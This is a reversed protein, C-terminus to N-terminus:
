QSILSQCRHGLFTDYSKSLFPVFEWCSHIAGMPGGPIPVNRTGCTIFGSESNQLIETEDMVFNWSYRLKLCVGPEFFIGTGVRSEFIEFTETDDIVM